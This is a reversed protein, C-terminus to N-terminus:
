AAERLLVYSDSTTRRLATLISGTDAVAQVQEATTLVPLIDAEHRDYAAHDRPCLPIIREPKVYLLKGRPEDHIRGIVHAAQLARESGCLRCAGEANLKARADEWIRRPQGRKIGPQKENSALAARRRAAQKRDLGSKRALAQGRHLEVRKM